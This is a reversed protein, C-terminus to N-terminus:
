KCELKHDPEETEQQQKTALRRRSREAGAQHGDVGGEPDGGEDHRDGGGATSECFFCEEGETHKVRLPDVVNVQVKRAGQLVGDDLLIRLAVFDFQKERFVFEVLRQHDVTQPASQDGEEEDDGEEEQVGAEAVSGLGGLSLDEGHSGATPAPSPSAVMVMVVSVRSLLLICLSFSKFIGRAM